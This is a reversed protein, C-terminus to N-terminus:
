RIIRGEVCVAGKVIPIPVVHATGDPEIYAIGFGHAWNRLAKIRYMYDVANIDGLWGFMAGVHAEGRASGEVAYALMHTHGIVANSQFAQMADRHANPGAKGCDHTLNLKGIKTFEKYPTYAWGREKLRLLKDIKITHFLAPAKDTLFREVRHCHNGSIFKKEGTFVKDFVNLEENVCDIEWQLDLRRNPPKPHNSVAFMDCFDGLIAVNKIGISEAARIMLGVAAKDHYPVHCDPVLLWKEVKSIAPTKPARLLRKVAKVKGSSRKAM